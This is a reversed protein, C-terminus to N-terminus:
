VIPEYRIASRVAGPPMVASEITTTRLAMKSVYASSFLAQSAGTKRWPLKRWASLLLTVLTRSM